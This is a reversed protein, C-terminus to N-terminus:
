YNLILIESPIDFEVYGDNPELLKGEGINLLWKSFQEVELCETPNSGSQLRTNRTLTLVECDNWIYSANLSSHVIDSRTGRPVVPLIQRFDGGFVIVKCGFISNSNPNNGMIDRLKRDLAEFYHKHAMPAEDWIILQTQRMMKALDDKPEINCIINELTPVLIKFKSHATRGGPLLLSAIGSSAITIVIQHKSRLYSALTKWMFTKGMGGNGHLFFVGGKQTTVVNIIKNFIINQEGTLSAFMNTFETKLQAVDYNREDYILQNGLQELVYGNPYPTLCFDKLTRRNTQLIMEIELLTLNQLEEDNLVLGVNLDYTQMLVESPLTNHVM